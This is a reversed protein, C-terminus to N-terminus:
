VHEVRTFKFTVWKIGNLIVIILAGFELDTTNTVPM